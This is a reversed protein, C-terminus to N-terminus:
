GGGMEMGPGMGEGMGGGGRRMQFKQRPPFKYKRYQDFDVVDNKVVLNGDPDLLLMEGPETLDRNRRSISKGGRIDLVLCETKFDVKEPLKGRDGLMRGGGPTGPLPANRGTRRRPNRARGRPGGMMEDMGEEGMGPGMMGPRGMGPRRETEPETIEHDLFNAVTGRRIDKFDDSVQIGSQMDWHVAMVKAKPDADIKKAPEVDALLLQDDHPVVVVDSPKSWPSKIYKKWKKQRRKLTKDDEILQQLEAILHRPEVNFNPNDFGLRVRYKYRKGPEINFDIFRFLIYPSLEEEDGGRTLRSRSGARGVRGSRMGMGGETDDEMGMGGRGGRGGRRRGLAAGPDDPDEDLEDEEVVDKNNEMGGGDLSLLPIEPSHAVSEDWDQDIRKPLPFVIRSHIYIPDVYGDSAGLSGIGGCKDIEKGLSRYPQKWQLDEANESDRVEAREIWFAYYMPANDLQPNKYVADKYCEYFAKTQKKLDVLGTLMVWRSGLPDMEQGPRITGGRGMGGMGGRGMSGRQPQDFRGVGPTGRLAKVAYLEPEGRKSRPQFIPPDLSTKTAYHAEDPDSLEEIIGEYDILKGKEIDPSPETSDIAAAADRAANKLNDPTKEYREKAFSEYVFFLFCLVVCAFVAREGYQVVLGLAAKKDFKMKVKM